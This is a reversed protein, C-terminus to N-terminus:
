FNTRYFYNNDPSQRKSQVLLRRNVLKYFFNNIRDKSIRVTYNNTNRFELM